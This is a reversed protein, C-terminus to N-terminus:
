IFVSKQNLRNKLRKLDRYFFYHSIQSEVLEDKVKKLHEVDLAKEQSEKKYFLYLEILTALKKYIRKLRDKGKWVIPGIKGQNLFELFEEGLVTRIKSIHKDPVERSVQGEIDKRTEQFQKILEEDFHSSCVREEIEKVIDDVIARSKKM